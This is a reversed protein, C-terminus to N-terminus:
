STRLLELTRAQKLLNHQLEESYDTTFFMPDCFIVPTLTDSRLLLRILSRALVRGAADLVVLARVHSQLVYGMLARNYRNGENSIIRLCSGADEGLMTDGAAKRNAVRSELLLSIPLIQSLAGGDETPAPLEPSSRDGLERRRYADDMDPPLASAVISKEPARTCAHMQLVPRTAIRALPQLALSATPLLLLCLVNSNTSQVVRM